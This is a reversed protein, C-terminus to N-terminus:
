EQIVIDNAVNTVGKARWAVDRAAEFEAWSRVTGDLTVRSGEVFISIASADVAASRDLAKRIGMEIDNAAVHPQVITIDNDVGKVDAIRWADAEAASRQYYWDATGQLTVWGDKVSVQIRDSPVSADFLLVDALHRAIDADASRQSRAPMVMLDNTLGRVGAIRLADRQAALQESALVVTGHLTVVGDKVTVGIDTSSVEPDWALEDRVDDQIQVDTKSRMM